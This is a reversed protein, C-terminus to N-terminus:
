PPFLDRQEGADADGVVGLELAAVGGADGLGHELRERARELEVLRFARVEKIESTCLGRGRTGAAAAARRLSVAGTHL